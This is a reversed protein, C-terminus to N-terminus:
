LHTIEESCGLTHSMELHFILNDPFYIIPVSITSTLFLFESRAEFVCSLLLGKFDITIYIINLFKNRVAFLACYM